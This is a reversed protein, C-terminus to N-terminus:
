PEGRVLQRKAADLDAAALILRDIADDLEALRAGGRQRDLGAVQRLTGTAEGVAERLGAVALLDATPRPRPPPLARVPVADAPDSGLLDVLQRRVWAASSLGCRDAERRLLADTGGSLRVLLAAGDLQRKETGRQGPM